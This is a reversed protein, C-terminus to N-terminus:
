AMQNGKEGQVKMGVEEKALMKFDGVEDCLDKMAGVEEGDEEAAHM